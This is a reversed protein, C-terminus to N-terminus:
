KTTVPFANFAALIEDHQQEPVAWLLGMIEDNPKKINYNYAIDSIRTFFQQM